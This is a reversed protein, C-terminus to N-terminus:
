DFNKFYFLGFSISVKRLGYYIFRYIIYLLLLLLISIYIIYIYILYYKNYIEEPIVNELPSTSTVDRRWAPLESRLVVETRLLDAGV